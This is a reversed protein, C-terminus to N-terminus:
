CSSPVSVRLIHTMKELLLRNESEIQAFRDEMITKTKAKIKLHSAERPSKNDINCKMDRLQDFVVFFNARIVFHQFMVVFYKILAGKASATRSVAPRSSGHLSQESRAHSEKRSGNQCSSSLCEWSSM